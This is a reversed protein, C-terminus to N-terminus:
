HDPFPQVAWGADPCFLRRATCLVWSWGSSALSFGRTPHLLSGTPGRGQLSQSSPSLLTASPHLPPRLPLRGM